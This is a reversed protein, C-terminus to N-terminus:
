RRPLVPLELWSGQVDYHMRNEAVLALTEVANDGGTNWNRELRPFSSSTVDLRLRHGKPVKYAISRMDVLVRVPQGPELFVPKRFGNRYRLRLAGEQISTARGDPWVHVLRAVIDTDKVDSSVTLSAKIPGAIWYDADMPATTYVLVDKRKEIEEQDAPGPRDAPNGTCCLPGGRSPVPDDPDYRWSDTAAGKRLEKTLYGNGSKSNARGNSGLYWRETSAESPPWSESSLWADAGIVYFTYAPLEALADGKGHLWYDFWRLFFQRYPQAANGIELEGFQGSRGAEEHGCHAGAAILVKQRGRTGEPDAKRWHEALVLTDQITQDGWTNIVLAPVRLRSADTLYGWKDWMPDGLPTTLFATYGNPASRVREVLKLVPRGRLWTSFAFPKAAPAKPRMTGHRLFWGFGSALQFVGGEFLGFYTHRDQLSGVAGGGGSVVMARWNDPARDQSVLQTEALASCGFTGVKGDSWPQAVIWGITDAADGSAHAWPLLEGESDGTGRLDQVLVAYGNRAFFFGSNYGEEYHLRHYPLRVLITPLRENAGKPRYLSAALRTGDEMILWQNHDVDVRHWMAMLKIRWAAPMRDALSRPWSTLAGALVALAPAVVALLLARQRRGSNPM